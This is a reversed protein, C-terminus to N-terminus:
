ICRNLSDDFRSPRDFHATDIYERKPKDDQPDSGGSGMSLLVILLIVAILGAVGLSIWLILQNQKSKRAARRRGLIDSSSGSGAAPFPNQSEISPMGASPSSQQIGPFEPPATERRRRGPPGKVTGRDGDSVTDHNFIHEDDDRSPPQRRSPPVDSDGRKPRAPAPAKRKPPTSVAAAASVRAPKGVDISLDPLAEDSERAPKQEGAAKAEEQTTFSRGRDELWSELAYLVDGAAEFRDQPKKAMMQWCIDVLSEPCDERQQRPDVPMETQHKAIRQALSGDPFPPHGTLLFYLTCGLSYIDTRSDVNHSNLAQEPSLYDATGLVNEDHQITLSAGEGDSFRALGMDLIKIVDRDDLLLNAPKIDRHILGAEHAHQLGDAAQAIYDAATEYDLPGQKKVIRQLDHGEVYEMVFYHTDGISDIDYARVINRHDLQAAAKAELQFRALYSSDNIRSKPLVKIAVRRQMLRHEALYVSSMGGTGLHGLLKYKGLLFGKYRGELLKATHWDTLLREGVLHNAVVEADAPLQGGHEQKLAAVAADLREDDVLGSQRVLSVFKEADVKAM